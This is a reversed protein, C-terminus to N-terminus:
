LTQLCEDYVGPRAIYIIHTPDPLYMTPKPKWQQFLSLVVLCVLLIYMRYTFSLWIYSFHGYTTGTTNM